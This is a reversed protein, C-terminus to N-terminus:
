TLILWSTLIGKGMNFEPLTVDIVNEAYLCTRGLTEFFRERKNISTLRSNLRANLNTPTVQVKQVHLNQDLTVPKGKTDM